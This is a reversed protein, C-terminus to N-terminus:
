IMFTKLFFKGDECCEHPLGFSTVPRYRICEKLLSICFPLELRENFNPLRGHRLVFADVEASAKKQVSPHHCLIAITWCLFVSNTDTGAAVLDALHQLLM